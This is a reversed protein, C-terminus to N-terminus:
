SFSLFASDWCSKSKNYLPKALMHLIESSFELNKVIKRVMGMGQKSNNYVDSLVAVQNFDGSVLSEMEKILKM